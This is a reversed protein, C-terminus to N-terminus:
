AKVSLDTSTFNVLNQLELVQPFKVGRTTHMQYAFKNLNHLKLLYNISSMNPMTCVLFVKLPSVPNKSNAEPSTKKKKKERHNEAAKIPLRMRM